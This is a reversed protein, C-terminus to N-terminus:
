NHAFQSSDYTGEVFVLIRFEYTRKRRLAISTYFMELILRTLNNDFYCSDDLIHIMVLAAEMQKLMRGDDFHM